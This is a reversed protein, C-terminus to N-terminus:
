DDLVAEQCTASVASPRLAAPRECKTTMEYIKGTKCSEQIGHIIEIAHLGIDSHLRPRRGNKIAYCMDALGVGRLSDSFGHLLPLQVTQPLSFEVLQQVDDDDGAMM